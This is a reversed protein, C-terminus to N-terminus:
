TCSLTVAHVLIRGAGISFLISRKGSLSLASIVASRSINEGFVTMDQHRADQGALSAVVCTYKGSLEM